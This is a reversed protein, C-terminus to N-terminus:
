DPWFVVPKSGVPADAITLGIINGHKDYAVAPEIESVWHQLLWRIKAESDATFKAIQRQLATGLEPTVYPESM